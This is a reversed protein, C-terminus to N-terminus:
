RNLIYVCLSTDNDDSSDDNMGIGCSLHESPLWTVLYLVSWNDDAIPNCSEDLGIRIEQGTSHLFASNPGNKMELIIYSLQSSDDAM